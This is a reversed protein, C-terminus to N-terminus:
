VFSSQLKSHLSFFFQYQFTIKKYKDLHIAGTNTWTDTAQTTSIALFTTAPAELVVLKVKIGLIQKM